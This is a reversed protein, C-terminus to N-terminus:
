LKERASSFLATNPTSVKQWKYCMSKPTSKTPNSLFINIQLYNERRKRKRWEKVEAMIKTGLGREISSRPPLTPRPCRHLWDVVPMLLRSRQDSAHPNEQDNVTKLCPCLDLSPFCSLFKHFLNIILNSYLTALNLNKIYISSLLIIKSTQENCNM